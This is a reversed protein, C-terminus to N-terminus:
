IDLRKPARVQRGSRTHATAAPEIQNTSPQAEQEKTTQESEAELAPFQAQNTQQSPILQFHKRNRRLTERPTKVIYSRPTGADSVITAPESWNKDEPTRIRVQDGAMLEPLPRVGNRRNNYFQNREQSENHKQKLKSKDIPNYKTPLTPLTTRIQRQLMIESPSYGTATSPTLRYSMLALM